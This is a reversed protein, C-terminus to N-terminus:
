RRKFDKCVDPAGLWEEDIVQGGSFYLRRDCRAPEPPPGVPIHVGVGTGIRGGGGFVGFGVTSGSSVAVRETSWLHVDTGNDLKSSSAPPGWQAVVEEYPAGEWSQNYTAPDIACGAVALVGLLPTSLALALRKPSSLRRCHM